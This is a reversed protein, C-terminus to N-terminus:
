GNGGLYIPTIESEVVESGEHKVYYARAEPRSSVTKTLAEDIFHLAVGDDVGYGAKIEDALILQQYSPRRKNEGDYHPCNSGKLLGLCDIKYLPGNLPDTLGEEFWCISGASLGALVIGKEYARRLIDDLGWEKWLVLMNRTSGGGVYIIDQEFVFEELKEFNADFLSLHNTECNLSHFARYFREIYNDQDGGATPVFCVKPIEKNVQKLIYEDLALNDPEMSFGGGGMAIIQRM